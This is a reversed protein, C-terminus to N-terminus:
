PSSNNHHHLYYHHRLNFIRIYLFSINVKRRFKERFLKEYLNMELRSKMQPFERLKATKRLQIESEDDTSQRSIVDVLPALIDLTEDEETLLDDDDSWM